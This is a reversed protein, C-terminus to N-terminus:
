GKNDLKRKLLKSIRDWKCYHTLRHLMFTAFCISILLAMNTAFGSVILGKFLGFRGINDILTNNNDYSWSYSGWEICCNSISIIGYSFRFLYLWLILKLIWLYINRLNFDEMKM